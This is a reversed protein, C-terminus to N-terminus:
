DIPLLHKKLQDLKVPGVGPVNTLEDLSAFSGHQERHDVIAQAMSPGVNPLALLEGFKAQNVNVQFTRRVTQASDIEHQAGRWAPWGHSFGIAILAATGLLAM